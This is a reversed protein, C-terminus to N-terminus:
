RIARPSACDFLGVSQCPRASCTSGASPLRFLIPAWPLYHAYVNWLFDFCSLFRAVDVILFLRRPATKASAPFSGESAMFDGRRTAAPEVRWFRHSPLATQQIVLHVSFFRAAFCPFGCAPRESIRGLIFGLRPKHSHFALPGERPDRPPSAFSASITVISRACRVDSCSERLVPFSDAAIVRLKLGLEVRLPFFDVPHSHAAFALSSAVSSLLAANRRAFM